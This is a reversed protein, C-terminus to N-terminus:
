VTRMKSIHLSNEKAVGLCKERNDEKMTLGHEIARIWEDAEDAISVVWELERLAPLGKSVTPKGCALYEHMKLPYGYYNWDNIVYCMMCVNMGKIYHPVESAPKWGLFYVNSRAQLKKM